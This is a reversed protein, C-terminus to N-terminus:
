VPPTTSTTEVLDPPPTTVKSGPCDLCISPQETKESVSQGVELSSFISRAELSTYPRVRITPGPMKPQTMGLIRNTGTVRDFTRQTGSQQIEDQKFRLDLMM